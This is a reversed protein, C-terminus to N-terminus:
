NGKRTWLCPSYNFKCKSISQPSFLSLWWRNGGWRQWERHHKFPLWASGPNCSNTIFFVVSNPLTKGERAMWITCFGGGNQILGQKHSWICNWQFLWGTHGSYNLLGEWCLFPFVLGRGGLNDRPTLALSWRWLPTIAPFHSQLILVAAKEM